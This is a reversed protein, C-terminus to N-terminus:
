LGIKLQKKWYKLSNTFNEILSKLVKVRDKSKETSIKSNFEAIDKEISVIKEKVCMENWSKPQFKFDSIYTTLDISITDSKTEHPNM